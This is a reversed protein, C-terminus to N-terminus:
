PVMVQVALGDADAPKVVVVPAVMSAVGVAAVVMLYVAKPSSALWQGAVPYTSTTTLARGVIVAELSGTQSPSSTTMVALPAVEYVQLGIVSTERLPVPLLM